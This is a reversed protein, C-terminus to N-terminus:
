GPSTATAAVDYTSRAERVMQHAFGWQNDYWAMVKVLTTDAVRTLDLDIIAARPVDHTSFPIVYSAGARSHKGLDRETKVVGTCELVLDVRLDARPCTAPDHEAFAAIRRGNV